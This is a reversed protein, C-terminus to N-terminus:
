VIPIQRKKLMGIVIIIQHSNQYSIQAEGIKTMKSKIMSIQVVFKFM